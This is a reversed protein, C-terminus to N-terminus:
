VSSSIITLKDQGKTLKVANKNEAEIIILIDLEV